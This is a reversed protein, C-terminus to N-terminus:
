FLDWLIDVGITITNSFNTRTGKLEGLQQPVVKEVIDERFVMLRYDIRISSWKTTYFRQGLGVSPTFSRGSETWTLGAGLSAHMDYYIISSGLLSLKGYMLSATGEAGFYSRPENTNAAGGNLEKFQTLASSDTVYHKLGLIGVGFYENFFYSANFGLTASSLFPDSIVTGGLLGFQIKRAKSYTRNQVVGVATDEGQSWYRQKIADVDVREAGGANKGGKATDALATPVAATMLVGTFAFALAVSPNIMSDLTKSRNM